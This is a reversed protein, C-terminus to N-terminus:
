PFHIEDKNEIDSYDVIMDEDRIVQPRLFINIYTYWQSGVTEMASATGNWVRANITDNLSLNIDVTGTLMFMSGYPPTFYGKIYNLQRRAANNVWVELTMARGSTLPSVSTFAVACNIEFVGTVPAQFTYDNIWLEYPDYQRNPCILAITSGAGFYQSTTPNCIVGVPQQAPPMFNAIIEAELRELRSIKSRLHTISSAMQSLADCSSM